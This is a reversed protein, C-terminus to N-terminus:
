YRISPIWSQQSAQSTQVVIDSRECHPGTPLRARPYSIAPHETWTFRSTMTLSATGRPDEVARNHTGARPEVRGTRVGRLLYLTRSLTGLKRLRFFLLGSGVSRGFMRGHRSLPGVGRMVYVDRGPELGPCARSAGARVGSGGKRVGFWDRALGGCACSGGKREGMGSSCHEEVLREHVLSGTLM